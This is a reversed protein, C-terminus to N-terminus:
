RVVVITGLMEAEGNVLRLMVPYDGPVLGRLDCRIERGGPGFPGEALIMVERGNMDYLAITGHTERALDCRLDAYDSAPNPAIVAGAVIAAAPSVGTAPSATIVDVAHPRDTPTEHVQLLELKGGGIRGIVVMTTVGTAKVETTLLTDSSGARLVTLIFPSGSWWQIRGEMGFGLDELTQSTSGERATVDIAGRDEAVNLIRIHAGQSYAPYTRVVPIEGPSMGEVAYLTVSGKPEIRVSAGALVSGDAVSTLESSLDGTYGEAEGSGMRYGIRSLASDSSGNLSLSVASEGAMLNVLRVSGSLGAVDHDVAPILAQAAADREDYGYVLLSDVYPGAVVVRYATGEHVEIRKRWMLPGNMTAVDLMTEGAPISYPASNRDISRVDNMPYSAIPLGDRGDIQLHRITADRPIHTTRIQARGPGVLNSIFLKLSDLVRCQSGAIVLAAPGSGDPRDHVVITNMTGALLLTSDQLSWGSQADRARMRWRITGRPYEVAASATLSAVDSWVPDDSTGVAADLSGQRMLNVVRVRPVIGSRDRSFRRLPVSTDGLNKDDVIFVETSDGTRLLFMPHYQDVGGGYWAGGSPTVVEIVGEYEGGPGATGQGSMITVKSSAGAPMTVTVRREMGTANVIMFPTTSHHLKLGSADYVLINTAGPMFSRDGELLVEGTEVNTVVTRHTRGPNIVVNGMIAERYSVPTGSLTTHVSLTAHEVSVAIDPESLNVVMLAANVTQGAAPISRFILFASLLLLLPLIRRM